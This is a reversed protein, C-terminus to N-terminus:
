AGKFKLFLPLIHSSPGRAAADGRSRPLECYFQAGAQTPAGRGRGGRRRDARTMTAATAAAAAAAARPPKGKDWLMVAITEQKNSTWAVRPMRPSDPVMMLGYDAGKRQEASQPPTRRPTRREAAREVENDSRFHPEMWLQTSPAESRQYISDISDFRIAVRLSCSVPPKITKFFSSNFQM